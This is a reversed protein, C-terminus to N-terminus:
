AEHNALPFTYYTEATFRLYGLNTILIFNKSFIIKLLLSTFQNQVEM